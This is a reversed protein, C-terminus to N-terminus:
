KENTDTIAVSNSLQYYRYAIRGCALRTANAYRNATLPVSNAIPTGHQM